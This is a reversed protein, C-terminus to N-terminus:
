YCSRKGGRSYGGPGGRQGGRRWWRSGPQGPRWGASSGSMASGQSGRRGGRMGGGHELRDGREMRGLLWGTVRTTTTGKCRKIPPALPMTVVSEPLLRKHSDGGSGCGSGTDGDSYAMMNDTIALALDRYGEPTLHVPDHSSWLPLGSCTVRTKLGLDCADNLLTPDILEFTLNNEVAWNQLLRKLGELGVAIEEDIDPENFNDIHGENKCCKGNICRPIPSILITCTKQLASALPTCLSLIKKPVSPPAVNLSGIIHYRGDEARLAETPLGNDDTGMFTV